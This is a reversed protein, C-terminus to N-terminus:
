DELIFKKFIFSAVITIFLGFLSMAFGIALNENILKLEEFFTEIGVLPLFVGFLITIVLCITFISVLFFKCIKM